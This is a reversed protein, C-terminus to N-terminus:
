RTSTAVIADTDRAIIDVLVDVVAKADYYAVKASSSTTSCQAECAHVRVGMSVLADTDVTIAGDVPYVVDTVLDSVTFFTEAATYRMNVADVIARVIESATLTGTERDLSGNLMLIKKSKANSIAASMGKLCLNPIISTYLSGIGYVIADCDDINELVTPNPKPHVEFNDDAEDLSSAYFVRKIPSKLPDYATVVKDVDWISLPIDAIDDFRSKLLEAADILSGSKLADRVSKYGGSSQQLGGWRVHAESEPFEGSELVQKWFEKSVVEPNAPLTL